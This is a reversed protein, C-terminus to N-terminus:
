SPEGERSRRIIEDLERNERELAAIRGARDAPSEPTGAMIFLVALTVPLALAALMALMAVCGNALESRGHCAQHRHSLRFGHECDEDRITLLGSRVWNRYLARAALLWATIAGLAILWGMVLGGLRLVGLSFGSM